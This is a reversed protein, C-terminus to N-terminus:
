EERDRVCLRKGKAVVIHGGRGRTAQQHDTGTNTELAGYPGREKIWSVLMEGPGTKPPCTLLVFM